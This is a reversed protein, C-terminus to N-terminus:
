FRYGLLLMIVLIIIFFGIIGTPYYRWNISYPYIPFTGILAIILLILLIISFFM